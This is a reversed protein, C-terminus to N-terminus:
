ATATADKLNKLAAANLGVVAKNWTAVDTAFRGDPSRDVLALMTKVRWIELGATIGAGRSILEPRTKAKAQVM